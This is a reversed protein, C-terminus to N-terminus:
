RATRSAATARPPVAAAVAAGHGGLDSAGHRTQPGLHRLPQKGSREHCRRGAAECASEARQSCGTRDIPSVARSSASLACPQQQERTAWMRRRSLRCHRLTEPLSWCCFRAFVARSLWNLARADLSPAVGFLVEAYYRRPVDGCPVHHTICCHRIANATEGVEHRVQAAEYIRDVLKSDAMRGAM